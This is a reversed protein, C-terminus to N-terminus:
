NHWSCALPAQLLLPPSHCLLHEVWPSGSLNFLTSASVHRASEPSRANVGERGKDNGGKWREGDKGKDNLRRSAVGCLCFLHSMSGRRRWSSRNIWAKRAHSSWGREQKGTKNIVSCAPSRAGPAPSGRPPTGDDHGSPSDTRAREQGVGQQSLLPM